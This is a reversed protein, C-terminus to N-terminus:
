GHLRELHAALRNADESSQAKSQATGHLGWSTARSAEMKCVSAHTHLAQIILSKASHNLLIEEQEPQLVANMM